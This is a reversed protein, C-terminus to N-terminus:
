DVEKEALTQCAFSHATHIIDAPSRQMDRQITQFWRYRPRGRPRSGSVYTEFAQKPLRTDPMRIIHGLFKRQALIVTNLLSRKTNLIRLVQTNTKFHSWHINAISRLCQMEFAEIKSKMLKTLTWTESGYTAIPVILARFARLKLKHSLHKSSWIIRLSSFKERAISLRRKLDDMHTNTETINSGLYIFSKVQEIPKNDITIQIDEHRRGITMSKTKKLNIEMGTRRSAANIATTVAQLEEEAEAIVDIDDAYRLNNYKTGYIKIGADGVKVQADNIVTELALNFLPPSLICGQLVGISSAFFDTIEGGVIVASQNRDYLAKVAEIIKTTFGFHHMVKWMYERWITDFAKSYDIFVNYVTKNYEIFKEALQRIVYIMDKTSRNPRFGAQEEGLVEELRKDMRGKIIHTYCKRAIVLLSLGRYNGCQLPDEKKYINTILAKGWEEPLDNTRWIASILKHLFDIVPKGGYKLLEGPIGDTGAAKRNKLRGVAAIVEERTIDPEEDPNISPILEELVTIDKDRPENYLEQYYEKWRQKIEEKDSLVTGTKSKINTSTTKHSKKINKITKYVTRSDNRKFSQECDILQKELVNKKEKICKKEISHKVKNYQKRNDESEHKTEKMERRRDVLQLIEETVHEQKAKRNRGLVEEASELLINKGELWLDEIGTDDAQLLAEFRGGIKVQYEEAIKRNQLRDIRINFTKKETREVKRYKMKIKCMLLEHDTDFDPKYLVRTDCVSSKFRRSVLHYDIQNKHVGDPHTWTYSRRHQHFTNAVCLDNLECFEILREGRENMVGLGHKGVFKKNEECQVGVKANFDGMVHLHDSRNKEDIVQQLQSYFAEVEDMTHSSDPAYVQIITTNRNQGRVRIAIVRSSVYKVSLVSKRVAKSILFGVGERKVDDSRGKYFVGIDSRVFEGQGPWHTEGLGIIDWQVKTRELEKITIDLKGTKNLTNINLTGINTHHNPSWIACKDCYRDPRNTHADALAGSATANDRRNTTNVM